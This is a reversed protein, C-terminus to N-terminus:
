PWLFWGDVMIKTYTCTSVILVTCLGNQSLRTKQCQDRHTENTQINLKYTVASTDLCLCIMSKHYSSGGCLDM